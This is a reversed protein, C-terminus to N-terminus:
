AFTAKRTARSHLTTDYEFRLLGIIECARGLPSGGPPDRFSFVTFLNGSNYMLMARTCRTNEDLIIIKLRRESGFDIYFSLFEITSKSLRLIVDMDRRPHGNM